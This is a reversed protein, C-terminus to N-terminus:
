KGFLNDGNKRYLAYSGLLIKNVRLPLYDPHAQLFHKVEQYAAASRHNGLVASCWRGPFFIDGTRQM